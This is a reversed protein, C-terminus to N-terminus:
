GLRNDKHANLINVFDDFDARLEPPVHRQLRPTFREVAELEIDEVQLGDILKHVGAVFRQMEVESLHYGSAVTAQTTDRSAIRHPQLSLLRQMAEAIMGNMRERRQQELRTIDHECHEVAAKLWGYEPEQEVFPAKSIEFFAMELLGQGQTGMTLPKLGLCQEFVAGDLAKQKITRTTADDWPDAALHQRAFELARRQYKKALRCDAFPSALKDTAQTPHADSVWQDVIKKLHHVDDSSRFASQVQKRARTQFLAIRNQIDSEALVKPRPAVAVKPDQRRISMPQTSSNM